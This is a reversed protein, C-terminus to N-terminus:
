IPSRNYQHIVGDALVDMRRASNRLVLVGVLIMLGAGILAVISRNVKESIIVAYTAALVCTSVWMPDLGFYVHAAHGSMVVGGWRDM